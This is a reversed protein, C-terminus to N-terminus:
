VTYVYSKRVISSSRRDGLRVANGPDIIVWPKEDGRQVECVNADHVDALLINHRLLQQMTEAVRKLPAVPQLGILEDFLLELSVWMFAAHEAPTVGEAPNTVPTRTKHLRDKVLKTLVGRMKSAQEVGYPFNNITEWMFAEKDRAQDHLHKLVAACAQANLLLQWSADYADVVRSDQGERRMSKVLMEINEGCDAAERWLLYVPTAEREGEPKRKGTLPLIAYYEAFGGLDVDEPLAYVEVVAKVETPDSTLKCVVDKNPTPYACGWKGCGYEHWLVNRSASLSPMPDPLGHKAAFKSIQPWNDHILKDAWPPNQLM